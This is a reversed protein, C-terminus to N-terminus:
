AREVERQYVTPFVKNSIRRRATSPATKPRCITWSPVIIIKTGTTDSKKYLIRFPNTSWLSLGFWIGFSSGIYVLFESLTVNAVTKMKVTPALSSEPILVINNDPNYSSEHQTMTFNFYCKRKKCLLNCYEHIRSISEARIADFNVDVDNVTVPIKDLPEELIESSPIRNFPRLKDTLCNLKCAQAQNRHRTCNSDYPAPLLTVDYIHFNMTFINDPPSINRDQRRQWRAFHRSTYPYLDESAFYAIVQIWSVNNFVPKLHIEYYKSTFDLAQALERTTYSVNSKKSFIYCIRKQTFYKYIDFAKYCQSSNEKLTSGIFNSFNGRHQCFDITDRIDPTKDFLERVTLYDLKGNSKKMLFDDSEPRYVLDKDEKLINTINVCFAINPARNKEDLELQIRSSTKYQFYEYSIQLVQVVFGGLCLVGFFLSLVQIRSLKMM